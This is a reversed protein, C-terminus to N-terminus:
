RGPAMVAPIVALAILAAFYPWLSVLPFELVEAM